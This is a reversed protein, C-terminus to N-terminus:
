GTKTQSIAALQHKMESTKSLTVRKLHTGSAVQSGNSYNLNSICVKEEANKKKGQKELSKFFNLCYSISAPLDNGRRRGSLQSYMKRRHMGQMNEKWGMVAALQTKIAYCHFCSFLAPAAKSASTSGMEHLVALLVYSWM